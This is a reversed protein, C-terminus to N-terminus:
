GARDSSDSRVSSDPRASSDSRASSDPRASSGGPAAPALVARYRDPGTPELDFGLGEYFPALDGDCTAVLRDCGTAAARVLASGIGQGRRGPRVAIAEIRATGDHARGGGIGAGDGGRGTGTAGHTRDLTLAALIRGEAEAVLVDGAALRDPLTEHDVALAAGDLIGAVAAREDPDADRVDM